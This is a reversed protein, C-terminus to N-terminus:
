IIIFVIGVFQLITGILVFLHFVSHLWKKKKGAAYFGVGVTYSIGGTLIFIMAEIPLMAMAPWYFMVAWGMIVYLAVTVVKTIKGNMNFINLLTGIVLCVIQVLFIILGINTDGFAFACIPAYTGAILLYITNHDILRFLRKWTSDKPLAHYLTSNGYLIIVTCAYFILAICQIASFEGIVTAAITVGLIVLGFAMGIIHSIWNFLEEGRSYTPVPQNKLTNKM